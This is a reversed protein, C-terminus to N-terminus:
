CKIKYIAHTQTKLSENALHKLTKMKTKIAPDVASLRKSGQLRGFESQYNVKKQAELLDNRFQISAKIKQRKEPLEAILKNAQISGPIIFKNKTHM